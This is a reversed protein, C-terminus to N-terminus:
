VTVAHRLMTDRILHHTQLTTSPPEPYNAWRSAPVHFSAPMTGQDYKVVTYSSTSVLAQSLSSATSLAGDFDFVKDVFQEAAAGTTLFSHLYVIGVSFSAITMRAIQLTTGDDAGRRTRVDSLIDSLIGWWNAAFVGTNTAASTLFPMIVLEPSGAADLQFGLRDMYYFLQPWKGAKTPYDSDKYGAQAPTPHFYVLPNAYDVAGSPIAVGFWNPVVRADIQYLMTTARVNTAAFALQGSGPVSTPNVVSIVSQQDGTGQHLGDPDPPLPISSVPWPSRQVHPPSQVTPPPQVIPPALVAPPLSVTVASPPMLPPSSGAPLAGDRPPAPPPVVPHSQAPCNTGSTLAWVGGYPPFPPFPPFSPYPPYPQEPETV